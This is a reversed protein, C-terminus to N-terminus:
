RPFMPEVRAIKFAESRRGNADVLVSTVTYEGEPVNRFAFVNLAPSNEGDIQVQSSRYYDCSEAVVLLLRNDASPRVSVRVELDAPARTVLPSVQM